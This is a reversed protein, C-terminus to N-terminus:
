DNGAEIGYFYIRSAFAAEYPTLGLNGMVDLKMESLIETTDFNVSLETKLVAKDAALIQEIIRASKYLSDFNTGYVEIMFGKGGIAISALAGLGGNSVTINIDPITTEAKHQLFSIIEFHTLFVEKEKLNQFLGSKEM